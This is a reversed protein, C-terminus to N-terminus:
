TFLFELIHLSKKKGGIGKEGPNGPVGKEGKPGNFGPPGVM